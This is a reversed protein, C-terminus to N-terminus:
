KVGKIFGKVLPSIVGTVVIAMISWATVTPFFAFAAVLLGAQVIWALMVYAM